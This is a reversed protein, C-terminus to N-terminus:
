FFKKFFTNKEIEVIKKTVDTKDISLIIPLFDSVIYDEMKKIKQTKNIEFFNKLCKFLLYLINIKSQIFM